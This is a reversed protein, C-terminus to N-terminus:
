NLSTADNPHPARVALCLVVIKGFVQDLYEAIDVDIRQHGPHLALLAIVGHQVNPGEARGATLGDPELYATQYCEPDPAHRNPAFILKAAELSELASQLAADADEDRVFNDPM